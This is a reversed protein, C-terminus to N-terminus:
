RIGIRRKPEIKLLKALNEGFIKRKVEVTLPEYGYGELMDEPIQFNAFGEASAKIRAEPDYALDTGWVIRDPGVFRVAEGILEAFRRPANAAWLVTWSIGIYVNPRSMALVNLDHFYPWGFHFAIVKLDPFDNVVDELLVPMSYKSYGHPPWASGTHISVPIGLESIKEYFPWLERNNIYTDECPYFKILKANREKVLYELEWLANKIGRRIIPGVNPQLVFREPYSECWRVLQGNTSWRTAYDFIEMFSEPLICAIDVGHKDMAELLDEPQPSTEAGWDSWFDKGPTPTFGGAGFMGRRMMAAGEKYRRVAPFYNVDVLPALVHAEVDIKFYDKTLPETTM